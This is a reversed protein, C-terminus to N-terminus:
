FTPRCKTLFYIYIKQLEEQIKMIKYLSKYDVCISIMVMKTAVSQKEFTQFTSVIRSSKDKGYMIFIMIAINIRM